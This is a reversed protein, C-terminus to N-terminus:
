YSYEKLLEPIRESVRFGLSNLWEIALDANAFSQRDYDTRENQKILMKNNQYQRVSNATEIIATYKLNNALCWRSLETIIPEVEPTGLQWENLYVIHAWPQGNFEAVKSKIEDVYKQAISRGSIGSPVSLLVFDDTFLRFGGRGPPASVTHSM